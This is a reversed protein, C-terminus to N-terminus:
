VFCFFPFVLRHTMYSKEAAWVLNELIEYLIFLVMFSRLLFQVTLFPTSTSVKVHQNLVLGAQTWASANVVAKSAIDQTVATSPLIEAPSLNWRM